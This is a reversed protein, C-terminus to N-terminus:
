QVQQEQQQQQSQEELPPSPQDARSVRVAIQPESGTADGKFTGRLPAADRSERGVAVPIYADNTVLGVTADVGRWGAGPILVEAWAHTAQVPAEESSIAGADVYGMVYRAAFGWSRVLSVVLHAFDQCVGARQEAFEALAGHVETTGPAYRFTTASWAMAAQVNQLLGRDAAYAPPDCGALAVAADPVADSRHLVFDHLSPAEGLRQALWAREDKPDLPMYDFPNALATEVETRVHVRVRDHPALLSFRHVLNGFCDVHTSLPAEPVIEIECSLRRQGGDERPALRLECQHERVPKPFELLTEHEILYRM